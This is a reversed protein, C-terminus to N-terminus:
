QPLFGMQGWHIIFTWSNKCWMGLVGGPVRHRADLAWSSSGVKSTEKTTSALCSSSNKTGAFGRYSCGWSSNNALYSSSGASSTGGSGGYSSCLLSRPPWFVYSSRSSLGGKSNAWIPPLAASARSGGWPLWTWDLAKSGHCVHPVCSRNFAAVRGVEWNEIDRGVRGETQELDSCM